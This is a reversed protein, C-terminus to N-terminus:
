SSITWGSNLLAQGIFFTTNSTDSPRHVQHEISGEFGKQPESVVSTKDVFSNDPFTNEVHHPLWLLIFM